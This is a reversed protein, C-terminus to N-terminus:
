KSRQSDPTRKSFQIALALGIGSLSLVGTGPEPTKSLPDVEGAFNSTACFLAFSIIRSNAIQQGEPSLGRALRGFGASVALDDGRNSFVYNNLLNQSGSNTVGPDDRPTITRLAGFLWGPSLGHRAESDHRSPAIAPFLAFRSDDGQLLVVTVLEWNRQGTVASELVNALQDVTFDDEFYFRIRNANRSGLNSVAVASGFGSNRSNDGSRTTGWDVAPSRHQIASGTSANASVGCAREGKPPQLAETNGHNVTASFSSLVSSADIMGNSSAHAKLSSTDSVPGSSVLPAALVSLGVLYTLNM